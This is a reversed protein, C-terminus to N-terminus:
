CVEVACSYDANNKKQSRLNFKFSRYKANQKNILLIKLVLPFYIKNTSFKALITEALFNFESLLVACQLQLQGSSLGGQGETALALLRVEQSNVLLQRHHYDQRHQHGQTQKATQQPGVPEPVPSGDERRVPLSDLCYVPAGL